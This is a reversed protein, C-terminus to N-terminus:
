QQITAGTLSSGVFEVSAEEIALAQLHQQIATKALGFAPLQTTPLRTAKFHARSHSCGRVCM